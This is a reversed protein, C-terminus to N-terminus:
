RNTCPNSSPTANNQWTEEAIPKEGVFIFADDPKTHAPVYMTSGEGICFPADVVTLGKTTKLSKFLARELTKDSSNTDVTVGLFLPLGVADFTGLRNQVTIKAKALSEAIQIGLIMAEADGRYTAISVIKGAYGKLTEGIAKEQERSLRRPQIEALLTAARENAAAAQQNVLAVLQDSKTRLEANRTRLIADKDRVQGNISSIEIGAWLEGVIGGAVFIVSVLEVLLKLTSPRLPLRHVGFHTLAWAEMEDRWDYWIIWLEMFVGFAVIGTFWPLSHEWRISSRELTTIESDLASICSELASISRELASADTPLSSAAQVLAAFIVM